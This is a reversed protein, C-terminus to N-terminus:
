HGKVEIWQGRQRAFVSADYMAECSVAPLYYRGSYTANLRLTFYKSEGPHLGFYNYARDDRIDTYDAARQEDASQTELMRTNIIEWGSPVIQSLALENLQRNSTNRIRVKAVFDTGAKIESPELREGQQSQYVVSLELQNARDTEQGPKPTGRQQLSVFLVGNSTNTISIKRAKDPQALTQQILLKEAKLSQKQAGDTISVMPKDAPPYAKAYKSVALLAYATTQTSMWQDRSLDASIERLLELAQTTNKMAVLAELIMARDRTASGFTRDTSQYEVVDATLSAVIKQATNSKGTIHYSMALRWAAAQSLSKNEYLKNM